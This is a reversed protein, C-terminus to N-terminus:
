SASRAEHHARSARALSLGEQRSDCVELLRQLGVTRLLDSVPESAAVVLRGGRGLLLREGSALVGLGTSDMFGVATADIVINRAGASFLDLLAERFLPATQITVEGELVLVPVEGRSDISQVHLSSESM